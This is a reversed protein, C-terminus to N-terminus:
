GSVETFRDRERSYLRQVVEGQDPAPPPFCAFAGVEYVRLRAGRMTDGIEVSGQNVLEIAMSNERTAHQYKFWDVRM